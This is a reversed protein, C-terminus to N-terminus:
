AEAGAEVEDARKKATHWAWLVMLTTIPTVMDVFPILGFLSDLAVIAAVQIVVKVLQRKWGLQTIILYAVIGKPLIAILFDLFPVPIMDCGDAVLALPLALMFIFSNYEGGEIKRTAEGAKKKLSNKSFNKTGQTIKQALSM